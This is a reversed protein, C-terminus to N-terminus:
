TEHTRMSDCAFFRNPTLQCRGTRLARDLSNWTFEQAQDIAEALPLGCALQAAVASALTCGSGHYSDPLRPWERSRSLGAPGYLRNVVRPESEHTGTILVASCGAAILISACQALDTQGALARAEPANPTLLTCRGCLQERIERLLAADAMSTGSGSALVPDLVVPIEPYESLLQALAGATDAQGILGIKIAGVPSEDLLLRCQEVIQAPPQPLVAEVGCSNQTTLATVVTLAHGGNAAVAEIDAQLGAGGSPDHGGIALVLPITPDIQM